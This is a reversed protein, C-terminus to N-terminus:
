LIQQKNIMLNVFRLEYDIVDSVIKIKEDPDDEKKIKDIVAEIDYQLYEAVNYMRNTISDYLRKEFDTLKEYAKDNEENESEFSLYYADVLEAHVRWRQNQGNKLVSM